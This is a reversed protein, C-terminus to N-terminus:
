SQAGQTCHLSRRAGATRQGGLEYSGLMDLAELGTCHHALSMLSVSTTDRCGGLVLHTLGRCGNALKEVAGDSVMDCHELHLYRLNTCNEAFAELLPDYIRTSHEVFFYKLCPCGQVISELGRCTMSMSSSSVRFVELLKCREGVAVLGKDSVCSCGELDLERLNRCSAAVQRFTVDSVSASSGLQIVELAACCKLIRAMASKSVNGNNQLRLKRLSAGCRAVVRHMDHGELEHKLVSLNLEEWLPPDLAIVRWLRCVQACRSLSVLDLFSFIQCLIEEPLETEYPSPQLTSHPVDVWKGGASTMDGVGEPVLTM